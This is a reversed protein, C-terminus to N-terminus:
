SLLYPFRFQQNWISNFHIVFMFVYVYFGLNYVFLWGFLSSFTIHGFWFTNRNTLGDTHKSFLISYPVLIYTSKAPFCVFAVANRWAAWTRKLKVCIRMLKTWVRKLEIWNNQQEHYFTYVTAFIFLVLVLLLLLMLLLLLLLLPLLPSLLRNTAGDRFIFIISFYPSFYFIFSLHYIVTIKTFHYFFLYVLDLM